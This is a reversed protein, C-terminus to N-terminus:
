RYVYVVSNVLMTAAYIARSIDNYKIEYLLM